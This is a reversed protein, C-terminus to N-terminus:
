SEPYDEYYGVGRWQKLIIDVDGGEKPEQTCLIMELGNELSNTEHSM